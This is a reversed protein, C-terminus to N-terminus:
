ILKLKEDELEKLIQSGNASKMVAQEIRIHKTSMNVENFKVREEKSSAFSVNLKLIQDKAASPARQVEKPQKM